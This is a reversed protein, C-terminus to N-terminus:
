DTSDNIKDEPIQKTRLIDRIIEDRILDIYHPQLPYESEDINYCINEAIEDCGCCTSYESLSLPDEFVGTVSLCQLISYEEAKSYVYIHNDVDIFAYLANSFPANEIYPAKDKSIFNFPIGLKTTPKVKTIAVKSHLDIPKPLPQKSKLIQSCAYDITCENADALEMELCLTQQVSNDVTKLYNNLDQRLYKARKINYLYIIYREDLESDDSYARVAEIVDYVLENIKSM